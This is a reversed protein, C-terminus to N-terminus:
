LSWYRMRKKYTSTRINHCKVDCRFIYISCIYLCVCVFTDKNECTIGWHIWCFDWLFTLDFYDGRFCVERM